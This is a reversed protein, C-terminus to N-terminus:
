VPVPVLVRVNLVVGACLFRQDVQEHEGLYAYRDDKAKQQLDVGPQKCRHRPRKDDMLSRSEPIDGIRGIMPVYLWALLVRVAEKLHKRKHRERHCAAKM